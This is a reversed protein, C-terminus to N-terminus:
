AQPPEEEQSVIKPKVLIGAPLFIGYGLVLLLPAITIDGTSLVVYGLLIFLLAIAMLAYNRGSFPLKPQEKGSRINAKKASMKLGGIYVQM